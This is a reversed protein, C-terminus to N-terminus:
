ATSFSSPATLNGRINFKVLEQNESIKEIQTINVPVSETLVVPTGETNSTAHLFVATGLEGNSQPLFIRSLSNLTTPTIDSKKLQMQCSFVGGFRGRFYIPVALTGPSDTTVYPINRWGQVIDVREVQTYTYDSGPKSDGVSASTDFVLVGGFGLFVEDSSSVIRSLTFRLKRRLEPQSGSIYVDENSWIGNTQFFVGTPPQSTPDYITKLIRITEAAMNDMNLLWVDFQDPNVSTVRLYLTIEYIDSQETFNPHVINNEDGEHVIKEVVLAKAKENKVIQAR